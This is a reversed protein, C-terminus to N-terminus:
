EHKLGGLIVEELIKKFRELAVNKATRMKYHACSALRESRSKAGTPDVVIQYTRNDIVASYHTGSALIRTMLIFDGELVSLEKLKGVHAWRAEIKEKIDNMPMMGTSCILGTSRPSNDM